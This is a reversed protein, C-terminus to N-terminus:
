YWSLQCRFHDDNPKHNRQAERVELVHILKRFVESMNRLDPDFLILKRSLISQLYFLIFNMTVFFMIIFIVHVELIGRFVRNESCKFNIYNSKVNMDDDKHRIYTVFMKM